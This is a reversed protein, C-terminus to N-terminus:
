TPGGAPVAFREGPCSGLCSCCDKQYVDPMASGNLTMKGYQAVQSQPWSYQQGSAFWWGYFPLSLKANAGSIGDRGALAPISCLGLLPKCAM